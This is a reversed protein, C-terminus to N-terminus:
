SPALYRDLVALLEQCEFFRYFCPDFKMLLLLQGHDEGTARELRDAGVEARNGEEARRFGLKLRERESETLIGPLAVLGHVTLAEVTRDLWGLDLRIALNMSPSSRMMAFAHLLDHDKARRCERFHCACVQFVVVAELDRAEGLVVGEK